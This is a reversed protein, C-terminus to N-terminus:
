TLQTGTRQLPVFLVVLRRTALGFNLHSLDIKCTRFKVAQGLNIKGGFLVHQYDFPNTEVLDVYGRDRM